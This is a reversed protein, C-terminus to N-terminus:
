FALGADQAVTVRPEATAVKMPPPQPQIETGDAMTNFTPKLKAVNPFLPEEDAILPQNAASQIPGLLNNRETLTNEKTSLNKVEVRQKDELKQENNMEQHTTIVEVVEPPFSTMNPQRNERKAAELEQQAKLLDRKLQEEKEPTLNKLRGRRKAEQIYKDQDKNIDNIATELDGLSIDGLGDINVTSRRWKEEQEKRQEEMAEIRDYFEEEQKKKKEEREELTLGDPSNAMVFGRAAEQMLTKKNTINPTADYAALVSEPQAGPLSSEEAADEIEAALAAPNAVEPLELLEAAHRTGTEGALIERTTDKELM